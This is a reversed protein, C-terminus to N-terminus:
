IFFIVIEGLQTNKEQACKWIIKYCKYFRVSSILCGIISLYDKLSTRSKGDVAKTGVVVNGLALTVRTLLSAM